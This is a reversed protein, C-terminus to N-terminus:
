VTENILQELATAQEELNRAMAEAYRREAKDTAQQFETRYYAAQARLLELDDRTPM